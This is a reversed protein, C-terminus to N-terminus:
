SRNSKNQAPRNPVSIRTTPTAEDTVFVGSGRGGLARQTPMGEFTVSMGTVGRLVRAVVRASFTYEVPARGNRVYILVRQGLAPPETTALAFGMGSANRITCVQFRGGILYEAPAPEPLLTLLDRDDLAPVSAPLLQAFRELRALEEDGLPIGLEATKSLLVRYEFIQELRKTM